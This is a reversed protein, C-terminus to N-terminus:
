KSIKLLYRYMTESYSSLTYESYAKAQSKKCLDYFDNDTINECKMLSEKVADVTLDKIEIGFNDIDVGCEKSVVPIMAGRGMATIVATAIGESVSPLIVYGCKSSLEKFLSSEIDIFGHNVINDSILLSSLFDGERDTYGCIHLTWDPFDKFAEVVIDLGKHLLGYSAFYLMSKTASPKKEIDEIDELAHFTPNVLSVNLCGNDLFTKKTNENGICLVEDCLSAALGWRYDLLRTSNIALFNTKNYFEVVRRLSGMTCQWPHSGTAYYIKKATTKSQIAQYMPMGEGFIINYKNFDIDYKKHNNYIDVKYGLKNFAEAIVLSEQYNSHATYKKKNFHYTSYSFLVRKDYNVNFYNKIPKQFFYEYINSVFQNNKAISKIPKLFKAV